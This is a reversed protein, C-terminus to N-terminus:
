FVSSSDPLGYKKLLKAYSGDAVMAKMATDVAEKFAPKDKRVGIGLLTNNDFVDSTTEFADPSEHQLALITPVSTIISDTRGERLALACVATSPLTLLTLEPKGAAACDAVLKKASVEYVTAVPAAIRHGCLDMKEKLHLPNGKVALIQNGVKLYSIFDVVQKREENIYMGSVIADIRGGLEAPILGKFEMPLVASQLKMRAAIEDVLDIDFGVPKGNEMFEFPPFTAATGWTFKGKDITEVPTQARSLGPAAISCVALALLLLTRPLM